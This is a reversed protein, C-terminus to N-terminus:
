GLMKIFSNILWIREAKSLRDLMKDAVATLEKIDAITKQFTEVAPGDGEVTALCNLIGAVPELERKKRNAIIMNATKWIDKEAYFYERRDGPKHEKMVLGWDMLARLNMNANGRSINLEQMIADACLPAHSVLLLAHVQAMTRNIGWTSGLAGWAQIFKAKGEELTLTKKTPENGVTLM